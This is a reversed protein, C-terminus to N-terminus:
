VVGRGGEEAPRHAHGVEHAGGTDRDAPPESVQVAAAAHEEAQEPKEGGARGAQRHKVGIRRQDEPPGGLAGATSCSREGRREHGLQNPVSVTWGLLAASAHYSRAIAPLAPLYSVAAISGVLPVSALAVLPVVPLRMDALGPRAVEPVRLAIAPTRVSTEDLLAELATDANAETGADMM